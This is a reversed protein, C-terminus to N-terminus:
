SQPSQSHERGEEKKKEYNPLRQSRSQRYSVIANAQKNKLLVHDVNIRPIPVESPRDHPIIDDTSAKRVLRLLLPLSLAIVIDSSHDLAYRRTQNRIIKSPIAPISMMVLSEHSSEIRIPDPNSHTWPRPEPIPIATFDALIPLDDPILESSSHTLWELVIM